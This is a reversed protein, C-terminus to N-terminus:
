QIKQFKLVEIKQLGAKKAQQFKLMRPGLAMEKQKKAAEYRELAQNKLTSDVRTKNIMETAERYRAESAAALYMLGDSPNYFPSGRQSLMLAYAFMSEPEGLQAAAGAHLEGLWPDGVKSMQSRAFRTHLLPDLM